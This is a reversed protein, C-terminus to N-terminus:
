LLLPLLAFMAWGDWGHLSEQEIILGKDFREVSHVIVIMKQFEYIANWYWRCHCCVVALSVFSDQLTVVVPTACRKDQLFNLMTANEHWGVGENTSHCCFGISHFHRSFRM